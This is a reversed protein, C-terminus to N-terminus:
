QLKEPYYHWLTRLPITNGYGSKLMSTRFVKYNIISANIIKEELKIEDINNWIAKHQKWWKLAEIDKPEAQINTNHTAANHQLAEKSTKYPYDDLIVGTVVNYVLFRRNPEPTEYTNIQM